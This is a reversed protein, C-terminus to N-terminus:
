SIVHDTGLLIDFYSVKWEPGLEESVRHALAEGRRVFDAQDEASGFGSSLPDEQNLTRDYEGAWDDLASALGASLGLQDDDPALNSPDWLPHCGYDPMVRLTRVTAIM